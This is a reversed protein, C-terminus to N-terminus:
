GWAGTSGVTELPSSAESNQNAWGSVFGTTARRAQLASGFGVSGSWTEGRRGHMSQPKADLAVPALAELLCSARRIGGFGERVEGGLCPPSPPMRIWVEHAGCRYVEPPARAPPMQPRGWRPAALLVSAGVGAPRGPSGNSKLIGASIPETHPARTLGRTCLVAANPAAAAAPAAPHGPRNKLNISGAAEISSLLM